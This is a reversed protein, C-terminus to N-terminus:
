IIYYHIVKNGSCILYRRRRHLEPCEEHRRLRIPPPSQKLRLPHRTQKHIDKLMVPPRSSIEQMLIHHHRIM